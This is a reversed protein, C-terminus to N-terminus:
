ILTLKDISSSLRGIWNSKRMKYNAIVCMDRNTIALVNAIIQIDNIIGIGDGGITEDYGNNGISRKGTAVKDACGKDMWRRHM